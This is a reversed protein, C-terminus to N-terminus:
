PRRMQPLRRPLQDSVSARSSFRSLLRRAAGASAQRQSGGRVSAERLHAPFHPLDGLPARRWSSSSCGGTPPSRRWCCPCSPGRSRRRRSMPPSRAPRQRRYGSARPLTRACYGTKSQLPSCRQARGTAEQDCVDVRGRPATASRMACTQPSSRASSGPAGACSRTPRSRVGTSPGLRRRSDARPAVPM